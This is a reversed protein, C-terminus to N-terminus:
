DACDDFLTATADIILAGLKQRQEGISLNAANDHLMLVPRRTKPDRVDLGQKGHLISLQHNHVCAIVVWSSRIPSKTSSNTFIM